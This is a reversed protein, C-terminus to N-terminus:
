GRTRRLVSLSVLGFALALALYVTAGVGGLVLVAALRQANNQPNWIQLAMYSGAGIGTALGIGRRAVRRVESDILRRRRGAVARVQKAALVAGITYSISISAALGQVHWRGVLLLALAVNLSNQILYIWFIRRADKTAQLARVFFMFLSFGPLGLSLLGVVDATTKAAHASFEGHALLLEVAPRALAVFGAAAPLVFALITTAGRRVLAVFDGRRGDLWRRTLEPQLATMVATSVIAFPLQFFTYGNSYATPDGERWNALVLMANVAIQNAVVWGLTWGSLRAMQRVAPHRLNWNWRIHAGARRLMPILLGAYAVVGLTTGIGLWVIWSPNARLNALDLREGRGPFFWFMAIVVANNALSTALALAFRNLANLVAMALTALGYLAVQPAFWRLLDGMVEAQAASRAGARLTFLRVVIPAALALLGSVAVLLTVMCTWVASIGAWGTADKDFTHRDHDGRVRPAAHRLQEVFIPVITASLIGGVVLDYVQNPTTNAINYADNVASGGLVFSQTLVRVFGAIRSLGIVMAVSAAAAALTSETTTRTRPSADNSRDETAQNTSM